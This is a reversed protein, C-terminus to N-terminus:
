FSFDYYADRFGLSIAQGKWLDDGQRVWRGNKRLTYPTGLKEPQGVTPAPYFKYQQSESMGNNDVRVARDSRVLIKKGDDSVQVITGSSRDSGCPICVGMGEVPKVRYRHGSKARLDASSTVTHKCSCYYGLHVCDCDLCPADDRQPLEEAEVQVAEM